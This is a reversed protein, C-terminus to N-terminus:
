YQLANSAAANASPTFWQCQRYRGLDFGVQPADVFLEPRMIAGLSRRSSALRSRDLRRDGGLYARARGGPSRGALLKGASQMYAIMLYTFM